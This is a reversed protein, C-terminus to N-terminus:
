INITYKIIKPENTSLFQKVMLNRSIMVEYKDHVVDSTYLYHIFNVNDFWYSTGPVLPESVDNQAFPPTDGTDWSGSTYTYLLDNTMDYIMQGETGSGSPAVGTDQTSVPSGVWDNYTAEPEIAFLGIEGFEFATDTEIKVYVIIKRENEFIHEGIDSIKDSWVDASPDNQWLGYGEETTVKVEAEKEDALSTQDIEVYETSGSGSGVRIILEKNSIDNRWLYLRGNKVIM